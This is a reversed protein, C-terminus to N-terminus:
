SPTPASPAADCRPRRGDSAKRAVAEVNVKSTGKSWLEEDIPVGKGVAWADLAEIAYEEWSELHGVLDKPSWDGGGLGPRSLARPPLRDLLANVAAHGDELIRIARRRSTLDDAAM